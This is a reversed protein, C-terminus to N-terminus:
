LRVGLLAALEGFRLQGEEAAVAARTNDGRALAVDRTEAANAVQMALTSIRRTSQRLPCSRDHLQKPSDEAAGHVPCGCRAPARTTVEPSAVHSTGAPAHM